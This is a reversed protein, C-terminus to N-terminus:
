ERSRIPVNSSWDTVAICASVGEAAREDVYFAKQTAPVKARLLKDYGAKLEACHRSNFHVDITRTVVFDCDIDESEILEKLADVHDAEFAAVEAAM